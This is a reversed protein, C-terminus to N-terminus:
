SLVKRNQASYSLPEVDDLGETFRCDVEGAGGTGIPPGQPFLRTAQM